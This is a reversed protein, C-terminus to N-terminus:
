ITGRPRDSHGYGPRDFTIVRYNKAAIPGSSEFDQIM